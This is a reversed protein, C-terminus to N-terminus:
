QSVEVGAGRMAELRDGLADCLDRIQGLVHEIEGGCTRVIVKLEQPSSAKLRVTFDDDTEFLWEVTDKRFIVEEEYMPLAEDNPALGCLKCRFLACVLDVLSATKSAYCLAVADAQAQRDIDNARSLDFLNQVLDMRELEAVARLSDAESMVRKQRSGITSINNHLKFDQAIEKKGTVAFADGSALPCGPTQMKMQCM